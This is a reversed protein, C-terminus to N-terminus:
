ILSAWFMSPRDFQPELEAASALVLELMLYVHAGDFVPVVYAPM